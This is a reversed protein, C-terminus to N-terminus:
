QAVEEGVLRDLALAAREIEARWIRDRQRRRRRRAAPALAGLAALLQAADSAQQRLDRALTLLRPNLRVQDPETGALLGALAQQEILADIHAAATELRALEVELQRPRGGVNAGPPHAGM